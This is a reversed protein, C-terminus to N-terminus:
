AADRRRFLVAGLLIAAASLALLYWASRELTIVHSISECATGGADTTCDYTWYSTGDQIWGEINLLVRWPSLAPLVNGLVGEVVIGYGVALGLVAATHRLTFGLAAGVASAAVALVLIRASTWSADAWAQATMSGTLGQTDNILWAGGISAVLTVVTMPVVGLGASVLKSAYVRGRRPEFTLWNTMSGTSLEAATFTTGILLPLFVLATSLVALLTPLSEAFTPPTMLYWQRQPAMQDCGFDVDEGTAESEAAEAEQCSAIQEEGHEAWDAQAQAFFEEARAREDASMPQVTTWTVVLMLAVVALSALMAMVVLRRSFLRSLEVTTLRIV